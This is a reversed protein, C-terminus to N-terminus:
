KKACGFRVPLTLTSFTKLNDDFRYARYTTSDVSPPNPAFFYLISDPTRAIVTELDIIKEYNPYLDGYSKTVFETHETRYTQYLAPIEKEPQTILRTGLPFLYGNLNTKQENEFAIVVSEDPYGMCDNLLTKRTALDGPEIAIFRASKVKVKLAKPNKTGSLPILTFERDPGVIEPLYKTFDTLEYSNAGQLRLVETRATSRM